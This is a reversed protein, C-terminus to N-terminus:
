NALSFIILFRKRSPAFKNEENITNVKSWLTDDIIRPFIKDYKIGHHEVVGTYRSNHLIWLVYKEDFNKGNSRHYGLENLTEAIVRARYESAYM